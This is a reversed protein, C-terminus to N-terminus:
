CDIGKSFAVLNRDDTTDSLVDDVSGTNIHRNKTVSEVTCGTVAQAAKTVELDLIDSHVVSNCSCGANRFNYSTSGVLIDEVSCTYVNRSLTSAKIGGGSPAGNTLPSVPGTSKTDALFDDARSPL